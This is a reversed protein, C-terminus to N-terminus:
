TVYTDNLVNGVIFVKCGVLAIILIYKFILYCFLNFTLVLNYFCQKPPYGYVAYVYHCVVLKIRLSFRKINKKRKLLLVDKFQFLYGIFNASGDHLVLSIKITPLYQTYM